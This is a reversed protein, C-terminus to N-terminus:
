DFPRRPRGTVSGRRAWDRGDRTDPAAWTAGAWLLVWFGVVLATAVLADM